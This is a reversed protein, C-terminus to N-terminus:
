PLEGLYPFAYWALWAFLLWHLALSRAFSPIRKRARFLFFALFLIWLMNIACVSYIFRAGQYQLGFKWGGLFWIVTLLVAGVFLFYTRKPIETQGRMLNPNWFLFFIAPVAVAIRHFGANMLIFAPIVTLAPMPSLITPFRRLFLGVWAPLLFALGCGLTALRYKM